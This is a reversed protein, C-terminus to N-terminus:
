PHTTPLEETVLILSSDGTVRPFGPSGFQFLLEAEASPSDSIARHSIYRCAATEEERHEM